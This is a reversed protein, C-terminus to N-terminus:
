VEALKESAEVLHRDTRPTYTPLMRLTTHGLGDAVTRPDIGNDLLYTAASRRLDRMQVWPMGAMERVRDFRFRIAKLPFLPSGPKHAEIRRQVMAAMEFTMAVRYPVGSPNKTTITKNQIGTIVMAKFDVHEATVRRLDSPRLRTWYLAKIIEALNEDSYSVLKTIEEKSIVVKRAYRRENVKPVLAAPNKTPLRIRKFDEGNVFGGDRYEEFKSFLRSLLMHHRNISSESYGMDKLYRRFREVDAKSITDLYYKNFFNEIRTRHATTTKASPLFGWYNDWFIRLADRITLRLSFPEDSFLELQESM